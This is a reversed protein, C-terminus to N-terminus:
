PLFIASLLPYTSATDTQKSLSIVGIRRFKMKKRPSFVCTHTIIEEGEQKYDIFAIYGDVTLEFRATKENKIVELPILEENM